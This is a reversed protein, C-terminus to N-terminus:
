IYHIMLCHTDMQRNTQRDTQRLNYRSWLESYLYKGSVQYMIMMLGNASLFFQLEVKKLFTKIGCGFPEPSITILRADTQGDMFMKM